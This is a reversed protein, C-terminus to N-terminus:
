SIQCSADVSLEPLIQCKHNFGLFLLGLFPAVNSILAELTLSTDSSLSLYTLSSNKFHELGGIKTRVGGHALGVRAQGIKLKYKETRM